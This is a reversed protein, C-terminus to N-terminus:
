TIYIIEVGAQRLEDEVLERYLYRRATRSKEHVLLVDFPRPTTRVDDRLRDLDPRILTDGSYGNDLYRDLIQYGHAHAYQEIEGIQSDITAEQEQRQTSVRAYLAVTRPTPAISM